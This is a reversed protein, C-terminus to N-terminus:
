SSCWSSSLPSGFSSHTQIEHPSAQTQFSQATVPCSLRHPDSSDRKDRTGGNQRWIGTWYWLWTASGVEEEEEEREREGDIPCMELLKEM